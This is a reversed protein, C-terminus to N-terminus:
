ERVGSLFGGVNPSRTSGWGQTQSTGDGFTFRNELSYIQYVFQMRVGAPKGAKLFDVMAQISTSIPTLLEIIFAAPYFEDVKAKSISGSDSILHLAEILKDASGRSNNLVIRARIQRRYRVDNLGSRPQNVIRGIADLQEGEALALDRLLSVDFVVDELEQVEDVFAGILSAIRPKEQYSGTLRGIAQSLHNTIHGIQKPLGDDDDVPLLVSAQGDNTPM